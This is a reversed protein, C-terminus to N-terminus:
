PLGAVVDVDSYTARRTVAGEPLGLTPDRELVTVSEEMLTGISSIQFSLRHRIGRESFDLGFTVGSVEDDVIEVGDLTALLRLTAAKVDPANRPDRIIDLATDAYEASPDRDGQAADLIAANLASANSPWNTQQEETVTITVSIGLRDLSEDLDAEFYADRDEASFFDVDTNTTRIQVAARDGYWVERESIRQYILESKAFGTGPLMEAPIVGLSMEHSAVYFFETDSLQHPDVQVVAEAIEDFAAMVPTMRLSDVLLFVVILLTLAGAAFPVVRWSRRSKLPAEGEIAQSLRALAHQKDSATPEPVRLLRRVADDFGRDQEGM